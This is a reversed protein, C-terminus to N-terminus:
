RQDRVEEPGRGGLGGERGVMKMEGRLAAASAADGADRGSM